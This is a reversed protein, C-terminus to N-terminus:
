AMLAAAGVWVRDGCTTPVIINGTTAHKSRPTTNVKANYEDMEKQSAPDLPNVKQPDTLITEASVVYEV